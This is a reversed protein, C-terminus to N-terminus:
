WHVNAGITAAFPLLLPQLRVDRVHELRLTLEVDRISIGGQLGAHFNGGPTSYWGDKADAYVTSRYEDTHKIHTSLAWDFGLSAAVFGRPAYYGGFLSLDTAFGTMRNVENKTGRLTPAVRGALKWKDGGVLPASVTARVQYDSLDLKAWPVTLMGGVVLPHGGLELTRSYGGSMVFAHEAGFEAHVANPQETDLTGYNIAQANATLPAALAALFAAASATRNV